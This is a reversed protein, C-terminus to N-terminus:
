IMQLEVFFVHALPSQIKRSGCSLLKDSKRQLTASDINSNSLKERKRQRQQATQKLAYIIWVPLSYLLLFTLSSWFQSKFRSVLLTTVLSIVPLHYNCMLGVYNVKTEVRYKSSKKNSKAGWRPFYLPIKSHSATWDVQLLQKISVVKVVYIHRCQMLWILQMKWGNPIM